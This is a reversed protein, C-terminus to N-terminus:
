RRSLINFDDIWFEINELGVFTLSSSLFQALPLLPPVSSTTDRYDLVFATDASADKEPLKLRRTFLSNSKWFFAMAERGSSVFPEECDAFVSYFGVGFAGIKTEDPNGEAIRKM